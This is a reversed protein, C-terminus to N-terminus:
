AMGFIWGDGQRSIRLGSSRIFVVYALRLITRTGRRMLIESPKVWVNNGSKWFMGKFSLVDDKLNFELLINNPKNRIKM